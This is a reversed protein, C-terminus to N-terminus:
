PLIEPRHSACRAPLTVGAQRLATVRSHFAAGRMLNEALGGVTRAGVPELPTGRLWTNCAGM